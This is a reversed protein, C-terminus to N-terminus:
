VVRAVAADVARLGGTTVAAGVTGAVVMGVGAVVSEIM